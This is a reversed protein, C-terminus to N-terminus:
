SRGDDGVRVGENWDCGPLIDHTDPHENYSGSPSSIFMSKAPQGEDDVIRGAVSGWPQLKITVPGSETGKLLATGILKRREHM